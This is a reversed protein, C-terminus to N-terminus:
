SRMQFTDYNYESKKYNICIRASSSIAVMSVVSAVAETFIEARAYCAISRVEWIRVIMCNVHQFETLAETLFVGQSCWQYDIETYFFFTELHM